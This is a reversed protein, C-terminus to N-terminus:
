PGVLGAFAIIAFLFLIMGLSTWRLEREFGTEPRRLISLQLTRKTPTSVFTLTRM